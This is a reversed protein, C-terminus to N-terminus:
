GRCCSGLFGSTPHSLELSLERETFRSAACAINKQDGCAAQFPASSFITTKLDLAQNLM